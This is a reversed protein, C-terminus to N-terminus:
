YSVNAAGFFAECVCACLSIFNRVENMVAAVVGCTLFVPALLKLLCSGIEFIIDGSSEASFAESHVTIFVGVV